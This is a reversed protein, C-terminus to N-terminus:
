HFCISERSFITIIKNLSLSCVGAVICKRGDLAYARVCARVCSRSEFQARYERIDGCTRACQPCCRANILQADAHVVRAWLHGLSSSSSPCPGDIINIRNEICRCVCVRSGKYHVISARATSTHSSQEACM